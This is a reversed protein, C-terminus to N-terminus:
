EVGNTGAGMSRLAQALLARDEDSVDRKIDDPEGLGFAMLTLDIFKSTARNDGNAAKKLLSRLVFELSIMQREEGQIKVTIKEASIKQLIARITKDEKKRGKPNGSTGKKFQHAKPPKGYGVVDDDNDIM